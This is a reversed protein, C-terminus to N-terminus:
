PHRHGPLSVTAAVAGAGAQCSRFYAVSSKRLLSHTQRIPRPSKRFVVAGCTREPLGPFLSNGQDLAAASKGVRGSPCVPLFSGCTREPLGAFLHPPSARVEEATSQFLRPARDIDSAVSVSPLCQNCRDPFIEGRM